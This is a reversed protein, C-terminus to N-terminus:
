MTLQFKKTFFRIQNIGEKLHANGRTMYDLVTFDEVRFSVM